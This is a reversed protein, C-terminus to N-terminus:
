GCSSYPMHLMALCAGCAARVLGATVSGEICITLCYVPCVSCEGSLTFSSLGLRLSTLANTSAVSSVCPIAFESPQYIDPYIYISLSKHSFRMKLHATGSSVCPIAFASSESYPLEMRRLHATKSLCYRMVYFDYPSLLLYFTLASDLQSAIAATLHTNGSEHLAYFLFLLRRDDDDCKSPLKQGQVIEQVGRVQLQSLGCYFRFVMAFRPNNMNKKWFSTQEEESMATLIHRACLYEQYTSHLFNFTLHDKVGHKKPHVHLLGMGDFTTKLDARSSLCTNIVVEEDFVLEEKLYCLYSLQSLCDLTALMSAPLTDLTNGVANELGEKKAQHQLLQVFLATYCQTLTDPLTCNKFSFVSCILWLNLPIYTSGTLDPRDTLASLLKPAASPNGEKLFFSEIYQKVEQPSFGQVEYLSARHWLESLQTVIGPRSTVVIQAQKLEGKLLKTIISSKDKLLDQREDLGDFIIQIGRGKNKVILQALEKHDLDDDLLGYCSLLDSLSKAEAVRKERLFFLLVLSFSSSQPASNFQSCIHRSFSTKGVGPPGFVIHLPKERQHLFHEHSLLYHAATEDAIDDDSGGMSFESDSRDGFQSIHTICPRDGDQQSIFDVTARQFNRLFQVTDEKKHQSPQSKIVRLKIYDPHPYEGTVSMESYTDRVCDLYKQTLPNTSFWAQMLCVYLLM